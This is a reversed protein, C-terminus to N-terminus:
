GRDHPGVASERHEPPHPNWQAKDRNRGNVVQTAPHFDQLFANIFEFFPRTRACPRSAGDFDFARLKLLQRIFVKRMKSHTGRAHTKARGHRRAKRTSVHPPMRLFGTVLTGHRHCASFYAGFLRLRSVESSCWPHAGHRESPLEFGFLSPWLYRNNVRIFVRM